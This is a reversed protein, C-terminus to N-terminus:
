WDHSTLYWGQIQELVILDAEGPSATHILILLTCQAYLSFFRGATTGDQLANCSCQIGTASLSRAQASSQASPRCQQAVRLVELMGRMLRVRAGSCAATFDRLLGAVHGTISELVLDTVAAEDETADLAADGGNASAGNAGGHIVLRPLLQKTRELLAADGASDFPTDGAHM